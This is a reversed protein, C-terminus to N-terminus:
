KNELIKEIIENANTFLWSYESWRWTNDPSCSATVSFDSPNKFASSICYESALILLINANQHNLPYDTRSEFKHVKM